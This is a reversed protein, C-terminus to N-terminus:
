IAMALMFKWVMLAQKKQECLLMVLSHINDWVEETTLEHPVEDFIPCALPSPASVEHGLITKTYQRGPQHLQPFVCAGQQHIADTVEKWAAIHKDDGLSPEFPTCFESDHVRTVETIIM